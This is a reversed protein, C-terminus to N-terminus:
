LQLTVRGDSRPKWHDNSLLAHFYTDEHQLLNEKSTEFYKGGVNLKIIDTKRECNEQARQEMELQKKEKEDLEQIAEQTRVHIDHIKQTLLYMDSTYKQQLIQMELMCKEMEDHLLAAKGM